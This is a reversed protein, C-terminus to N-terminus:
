LGFTPWDPTKGFTLLRAAHTQTIQNYVQGHPTPICGAILRARLNICQPPLDLSLQDLTRNCVPARVIVFRAIQIYAAIAAQENTTNASARNKERDRQKRKFSM